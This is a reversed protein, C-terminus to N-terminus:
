EDINGMYQFGDPFQIDDNQHVTERFWYKKKQRIENWPFLNLTDKNFVYVQIPEGIKISIWEPPIDYYIRGPNTAGATGWYELTEKNSPLDGHFPYMIGDECSLNIYFLMSEDTNNYFTQRWYMSGPNCSVLCVCMLLYLRKNIM